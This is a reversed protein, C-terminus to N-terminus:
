QRDRPPDPTPPSTIICGGPPTPQVAFARLRLPPLQGRFV